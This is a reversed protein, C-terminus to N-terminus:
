IPRSKLTGSGGVKPMQGGSFFQSKNGTGGPGQTAYMAQSDFHDGHIPSTHLSKGSKNKFGSM